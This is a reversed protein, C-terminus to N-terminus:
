FYLNKVENSGLFDNPIEGIIEGMIKISITEMDIIGM